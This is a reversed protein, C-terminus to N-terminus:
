TWTVNNSVVRNTASSSNDNLGGATNGIFKNNRIIFFDHTTEFVQVGYQQTATETSLWGGHGSTINEVFFKSATGSFIVGSNGAVTGNRWFTGGAVDVNQGATVSVGHGGNNTISADRIVLGDLNANQMLMGNQGCTSAQPQSLYIDGMTGSGKFVWGDSTCSDALTNRIWVGSVGDAGTGQPNFVIGENNAFGELGDVYVGGSRYMTLMSACHAIVGGYVWLGNGFLGSSIGLEIGNGNLYEFIPNHVHCIAQDGSNGIGIGHYHKPGSSSGEISIDLENKGADNVLVAYGGTKDVTTSFSVDTVVQNKLSLAPNGLVVSHGNAFTTSLISRGRGHGVVACKDSAASDFSIGNNVVLEGLPLELINGTGDAFMAAIASNLANTNVAADSSITRSPLYDAVRFRPPPVLISANIASEDRAAEAAVQAAEAAVQVATADGPSLLRYSTGDDVCLAPMGAVFYGSPIPENLLTTVPKATDGNVSLTVAGTNEATINLILLSGYAADPVNIATTAQIANATGADANNLQIVSYPLDAIRTWSGAGSAGQKQYVGDNGQTSDGVVWAMINADHALDANLDSLSDKVIAGNLSGTLTLLTLDVANEMEAAWTAGEANDVTIAAGNLDRGNFVQAGPKTLLVM